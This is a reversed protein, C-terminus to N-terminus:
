TGVKVSSYRTPIFKNRFPLKEHCLCSHAQIEVKALIGTAEASAPLTVSDLHKVIQGKNPGVAYRVVGGIRRYVGTALGTAIDEPIFFTEQIVPM